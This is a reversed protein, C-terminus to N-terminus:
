PSWSRGDLLEELPRIRARAPDDLDGGSWSSGGGIAMLLLATGFADSLAHHNRVPPLGYRDLLSYLRVNNVSEPALTRRSLDLHWQMTDVLQWPWFGIGWRHRCMKTLYGLEIQAFHCVLIRGVLDDLLADLVDSPDDGFSVETDTIHHVAASQGVEISTPPRILHHRASATSIVGDDVCVWGMSLLHGEDPDVATSEVDLVLYPAEYWPTARDVTVPDAYYRALSAGDGGGDAVFEVVARRRGRHRLAAVM